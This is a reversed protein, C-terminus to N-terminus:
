YMPYGYQSVRSHVPPAHAGWRSAGSPIMMYDRATQAGKLGAYATGLGAAGLGVKAKTLGSVLPKAKAVAEAAGPAAKGLGGLLKSAAALISAGMGAQKVHEHALRRGIGAALEISEPHARKEGSFGEIVGRMHREEQLRFLQNMEEAAALLEEQSKNDATYVGLFALGAVGRLLGPSIAGTKELYYADTGYRAM